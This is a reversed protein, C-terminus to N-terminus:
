VIKRKQYKKPPECIKYNLIEITHKKKDNYQLVSLSFRIM